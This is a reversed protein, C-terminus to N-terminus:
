QAAPRLYQADQSFRGNTAEDIMHVSGEVIDSLPNDRCYKDLWMFIQEDSYSRPPGWFPVGRGFSMGSTLGIVYAELIKSLSQTRAYNWQGCDTSGRVYIPDARAPVCAIVLMFVFMRWM